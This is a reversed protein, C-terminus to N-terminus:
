LFCYISCRSVEILANLIDRVNGVMVCALYATENTLAKENENENEWDLGRFKFEVMLFKFYSTAFECLLLHM